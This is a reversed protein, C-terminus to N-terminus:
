KHAECIEICNSGRFFDYMNKQVRACELEQSKCISEVMEWGSCDKSLPKLFHKGENQNWWLSEGVSTGLVLGAFVSAACALFANQPKM